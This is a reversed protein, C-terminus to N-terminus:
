QESNYTLSSHLNCLKSMIDGLTNLQETGKITRRKELQKELKEYARNISMFAVYCEKRTLLLTQQTQTQM